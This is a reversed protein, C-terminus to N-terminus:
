GGAALVLNELLCAVNVPGVGGPTPTFFLAKDKIQEEEYDGHFKGDSGKHMGVSILIVGRKIMDATIINPKGVSSIIIDAKKTILAPTHTKSDIVQPKAGLKQLAKIVSRGGTQGKGIVVIFLSRLPRAIPIQELIKLVAQGLPMDFKSNPHLGDIDKQPLGAESIVNNDFSPPLPRQIIIGHIHNNNNSQQITSLLEQQLTNTPLEIITVKAGVQEGQLKKRKVYLASAPDNGILIVVLHPTVGRNKLKRVRATLNKLIQEAIAKGDIKTM